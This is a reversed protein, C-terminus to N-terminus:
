SPPLPTNGLTPNYPPILGEGVEGGDLCLSHAAAGLVRSVGFSLPNGAERLFLGSVVHCSTCLVAQAQSVPFIDSFSFSSLREGFASIPPM